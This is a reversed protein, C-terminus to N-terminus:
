AGKDARALAGACVRACARRALGRSGHEWATQMRWTHDASSDLAPPATFADHLPLAAPVTSVPRPSHQASESQYRAGKEDRERKEGTRAYLLGKRRWRPNLRLSPSNTM